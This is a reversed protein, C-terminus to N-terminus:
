SDAKDAPARRTKRISSGIAAAIRILIYLFMLACSFLITWVANNRLDRSITGGVKQSQLITSKNNLASLGANLKQEVQQDATQSTDDIMYSSTIRVENGETGFTKVEPRTGFNARLADGVAETQVPKEFRVYYSRGGKFDVGM